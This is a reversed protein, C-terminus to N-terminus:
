FLFCFQLCHVDQHSPELPSTLFSYKTIITHDIKKNRWLFRISHTSIILAEAPRKLSFVRVYYIRKM